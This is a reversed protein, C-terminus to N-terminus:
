RSRDEHLLEVADTQRVTPPTLAAIEKAHASRPSADKLTNSREWSKESLLEKLLRELKQDIRKLMQLTLDESHAM